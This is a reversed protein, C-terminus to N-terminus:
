PEEILGASLARARLSEKLLQLRKRLRAAERRLEVAEMDKETRGLTIRVIEDWKLGRDIRLVLLARDDPALTQRLDHWKDKVDTQQWPATRTQVHAVLEHLKSDGTRRGRNWPSRWYRSNAHQALTYLWTRITCQGRFRPLASWFDEITQSLVDAADASGGMVNSLFGYLEPGYTQIALTAVDDMAGARLLETLRMEIAEPM